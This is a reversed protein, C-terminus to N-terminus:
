ATTASRQALSRLDIGRLNAFDATAGTILLDSERLADLDVAGILTLLSRVQEKWAELESILAELGDELLVHLFHGSVGVARAGLALARVVDM